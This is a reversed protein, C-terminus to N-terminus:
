HLKLQRRLLTLLMQSPALVLKAPPGSESTLPVSSLLLFDSFCYHYTHLYFNLLM